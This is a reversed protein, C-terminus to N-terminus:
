ATAGAAAPATFVVTFQAGRELSQATISWNHAAAIEQCISLGLGAGEHHRIPGRWFRQFLKPLADEPIGPGEDCVALQGAAVKVTVVGGAPSHLIANEVLNKLLMFLAGRDAHLALREPTCCTELYVDHRQALRQLYHSVDEAVETPDVSEFVYNQTESAEALHLLQNVQRAMRDLDELLSRRDATGEVDIQARLLALPTKLEHAADALFARQLTYGKELRDLTQNFATILPLFESPLSHTSLRSSLNGADIRAAAASAERLPRLVRHLTFYVAITVLALSLLTLRATDSLRIKVVLARAFQIFRRTVWVQVYYTHTGHTIRETAVLLVQNESSTSIVAGLLSDLPQGPSTLATTQGDSSFLARGSPDLFRYKVDGVFDRFVWSWENDLRTDRYPVGTPDYQVRNTVVGILKHLAEQTSFGADQRASLWLLGVTGGITIVLAGAYTLLLQTALSHLRRFPGFRM